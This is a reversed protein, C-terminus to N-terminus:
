RLEEICQNVTDKLRVNTNELDSAAKDVKADIEEMLPVQRDMEKNLVHAMNKLTDLGESIVSNALSKQKSSTNVTSSDM